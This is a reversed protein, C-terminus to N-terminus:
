KAAESAQTMQAELRQSEAELEAFVTEGDIGEGRDLSEIEATIKEQLEALKERYLTERAELM